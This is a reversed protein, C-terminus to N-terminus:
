YKKGYYDIIKSMQEKYFEEPDKGLTEAIGMLVWRLKQSQTRGSRVELRKKTEAEELKETALYKCVYYTIPDDADEEDVERRARAIRITLFYDKNLEPITDVLELSEMRAIKLKDM